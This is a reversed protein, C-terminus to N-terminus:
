LAADTLSSHLARIHLPVLKDPFEGIFESPSIGLKKGRSM